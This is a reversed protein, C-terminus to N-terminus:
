VYCCHSKFLSFWCMASASVASVRDNQWDLFHWSDQWCTSVCLATPHLCLHHFLGFGVKIGTLKHIDEARLTSKNLALLLVLLRWAFTEWGQLRSWNGGRLFISLLVNFLLGVCGCLFVWYKLFTCCVSSCGTIVRQMVSNLRILIKPGILLMIKKLCFIHEKIERLFVKMGWLWNSPCKLSCVFLPKM